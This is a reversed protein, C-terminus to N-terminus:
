YGAILNGDRNRIDPCAMNSRSAEGIGMVLQVFLYQTECFDYISQTALNVRNLVSGSHHNQMGRGHCIPSSAYLKNTLRTRLSYALNRELYRGPGQGIWFLIIFGVWVACWKILNSLVHDGGQTITQVIKGLVLPVSLSCLNAFIFAVYIGIMIRRERRDALRWCARLMYLYNFRDALKM